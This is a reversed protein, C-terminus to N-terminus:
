FPITYGRILISRFETQAMVQAVWLDSFLMGFPAPALFVFNHWGVAMILVGTAMYGRLRTHDQWFWRALGFSLLVSLVMEIALDNLPESGIPANGFLHFHVMKVFTVSALALALAALITLPYAANVLASGAKRAVGPKERTLLFSEDMGVFLTNRTNLGGAEIRALREHFDNMHMTM